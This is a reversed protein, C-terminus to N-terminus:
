YGTDSLKCDYPKIHKGLGFYTIMKATVVRKRQLLGDNSASKAKSPSIGNAHISKYFYKRWDDFPSM